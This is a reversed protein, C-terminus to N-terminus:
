TKPCARLEGRRVYLEPARSIHAHDRDRDRRRARGIVCTKPRACCSAHHKFGLLCKLPRAPGHNRKFIWSSESYGIPTQITQHVDQLTQHVDQFIQHTDPVAEPTLFLQANVQCFVEKNLILCKHCALSKIVILKIFFVCALKLIAPVM